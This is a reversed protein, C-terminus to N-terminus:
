KCLTTTPQFSVSATSLYDNYKDHGDREKFNTRGLYASVASKCYPKTESKDSLFPFTDQMTTSNITVKAPDGVPINYGYPQMRTHSFFPPLTPFIM